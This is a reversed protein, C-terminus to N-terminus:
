FDEYILIDDNHVRVVEGLQPVHVLVRGRNDRSPKTIPYVQRLNGYERIFYKLTPHIVPIPSTDVQEYCNENCSTFQDHDHFWVHNDPHIKM